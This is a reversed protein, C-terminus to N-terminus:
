TFCFGHVVEHFAREHNRKIRYEMIRYCEVDKHCHVVYETIGWFYKGPCSFLDEATEGKLHSLHGVKDCGVRPM